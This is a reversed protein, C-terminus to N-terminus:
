DITYVMFIFNGNNPCLTHGPTVTEFGMFMFTRMLSARDPREKLLGIFVHECKLNEEAYELLSVFCEKSGPPLEDDKVEVYLQDNQLVANWETIDHDGNKLHFSYLLSKLPKERSKDEAIEPGAFLDLFSIGDEDDDGGGDGLTGGDDFRIDPIGTWGNDCSLTIICQQNWPKRSFKGPYNQNSHHSDKKKHPSITSLESGFCDVM